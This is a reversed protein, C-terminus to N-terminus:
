LLSRHYGHLLQHMAHVRGKLQSLFVRHQLAMGHNLPPLHGVPATFQPFNPPLILLIPPSALSPLLPFFTPLLQYLGIQRQKNRSLM